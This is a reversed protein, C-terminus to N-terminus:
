KKLCDLVYRFGDVGMGASVDAREAQEQCGHQKLSLTIRGPILEMAVTGDAGTVAKLDDIVQGDSFIADIAVGGLPERGADFVKILVPKHAYKKSDDTEAPFFSLQVSAQPLSSALEQHHFTVTDQTADERRGTIWYLAMPLHDFSFRGDAETVQQNIVQGEADSLSVRVGARPQLDQGVATGDLVGVAAPFPPRLDITISNSAVQGQWLDEGLSRQFLDGNSFSAAYNVTLQYKGWIPKQGDALAPQLHLISTEEYDGGAALKILRPKPMEVYELVTAEAATVVAQAAKTDAPLLTVEVTSGGSTKVPRNEEQIVEEPPHKGRARRYLWLTKSTPNHIHLVIRAPEPEAVFPQKLSILLQIPRSASPAPNQAPLWSAWVIIGFLAATLRIIPDRQVM